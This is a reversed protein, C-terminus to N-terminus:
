SPSHPLCADLLDATTQIAIMRDVTAVGSDFIRWRRRETQTRALPAIQFVERAESQQATWALLLLVPIKMLCFLSQSGPGANEASLDRRPLFDAAAIAFNEYYGALSFIRINPGKPFFHSAKSIEL